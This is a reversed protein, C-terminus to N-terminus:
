RRQSSEDKAAATQVRDAEAAKAAARERSIRVGERAVDMEKKVDNRVDIMVAYM